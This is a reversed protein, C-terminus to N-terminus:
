QGYKKLIEKLQYNEEKLFANLEEKDKIRLEYSEILKDICTNLINSPMYINRNNSGSSNFFLREDSFMYSIPVNFYNCIKELIEIDVKDIGKEYNSITTQSINLDSALEEQSIGKQKRLEALKQGFIEM